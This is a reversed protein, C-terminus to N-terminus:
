EAPTRQAARKARRATLRRRREKVSATFLGTAELFEIAAVTGADEAEDYTAGAARQATLMRYELADAERCLKGRLSALENRRQIAPTHPTVYEPTGMANHRPKEVAIAAM